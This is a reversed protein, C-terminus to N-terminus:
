RPPVVFAVIVLAVSAVIELMGVHIPRLPHSTGAWRPQLLPLAAARVALGGGLLTWAVPLLLGAVVTAVVHFAISVGAFSAHGRERIVSRVVLVTGVLYVAAIVTAAAVREADVAGAVIAAAPVLVVAQAVQALSNVLDRPSGPRAGAATLAATPLLVVLGALLLPWALVLVAGLVLFAAAYALVPARYSRSRRSRLWTQATASVLYGSVATAALLLHGPGPRSAAIGLLLPVALM